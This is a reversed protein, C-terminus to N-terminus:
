KISCLARSKVTGWELLDGDVFEEGNDLDKRFAIVIHLCFTPHTHTHTTNGSKVASEYVLRM